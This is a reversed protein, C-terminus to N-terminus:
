TFAAQLTKATAALATPPPARALELFLSTRDLAMARAATPLRAAPATSPADHRLLEAILRM